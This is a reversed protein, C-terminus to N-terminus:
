AGQVAFRTFAQLKDKGRFRNAPSYCFVHDGPQVRRLPASKGHCAQMFGGEKGRRVHDASAVVIWSRSM